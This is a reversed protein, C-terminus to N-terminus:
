EEGVASHVSIVRTNPNRPKDYYTNKGHDRTGFRARLRLGLFNVYPSHHDCWIIELLVGSDAAM